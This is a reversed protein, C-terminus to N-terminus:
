DCNFLTLVESPTLARNYIRLEDIEGQFYDNGGPMSGNSMLLDTGVALAALSGGSESAWSGQRVLDGNVYVSAVGTVQDYAFALHVWEGTQCTVPGHGIDGWTGDWENYIWAGDTRYEHALGYGIYNRFYALCDPVTQFNLTWSHDSDVNRYHMGVICYDPNAFPTDARAWTVVTYSNALELEEAHPTDAHGLRTDLAHTGCHGAAFTAGGHLTLNHGHGSRDLADGDFPYHAIPGCSHNGSTLLAVLANIDRFSPYVGDGNIDGAAADCYPHTDVWEGFSSMYLVFPNIDGFNVEGDFSLDGLCAQISLTAAESVASGCENSAVVYYVGGDPISVYRISLIPTTTGSIRGDDILLLGDHYWQYTLSGFGEASAGLTATNGLSTAQDTPQTTFAPVLDAECEDPVGNANCDLSAGSVIDCVDLVGNSNCDSCWASGDCNAFEEADPICNGNCDIIPRFAVNIPQGLPAHQICVGCTRTQFDFKVVSDGYSNSIYLSDDPGLELGVVGPLSGCPLAGLLTWALPEGQLEYEDVQNANPRAVYLRGDSAIATGNPHDVYVPSRPTETWVGGDYQYERVHGFVPESLTMNGGPAFSLGGCTGLGTVLPQSAGTTWDYQLVRGNGANADDSDVLYLTWNPAWVVAAFHSTPSSQPLLWEIFIGTRADYLGAGGAGGTGSLVVLYRGDPSFALDHAREGPLDSVFTEVYACENSFHEVRRATYDIVFMGDAPCPWGDTGSGAAAPASILVSLAFRCLVRLRPSM